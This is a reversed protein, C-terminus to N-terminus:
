ALKGLSELEDVVEKLGLQELKQRTPFGSDKDWGRAKIGPHMVQGFIHVTSGYSGGSQSFLTGPTTKAKYGSPFTLHGSRGKPIPYPGKTGDNLWIYIQNDTAVIWSIGAASSAVAKIFTPKHTWTKYTKAFEKDALDAARKAAGLMRKYIADAKFPPPTIAKMSIM